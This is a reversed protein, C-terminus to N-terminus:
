GGMLEVRGEPGLRARRGCGENAELDGLADLDHVNGWARRGEGDLLSMIGLTPEGDRGHVVTYTEVTCVDGAGGAGAGVAGAGAGAGASSAGRRPLRDVEGQPVLHRFPETGPASSWLGVAHKTAYWGLGTVLGVAGPRSRLREAMTAISHTAYNNGPGGAFGLGGTVTPPRSGDDLDVGIAQAAMQVACPFCSYLDLLEVDDIGRGAAGLAARAAAAIAPSRHLVDRDTLFWHDNADAAALPFVMRDDPVGAARAAALSCMILAAGMDVRDNANMRKPYPFSIMRNEASVAAIQEPSCPERSWAFPNGAAVESFRAWLRATRAQHEAIGEGAAARLANEFLPFVNRPRDLGREREVTTVPERDTGLARAPPTDEPQTTWPPLGGGHRRAALRTAICDAGAILVVDLEGAAIEAASRGAITVPGNGGIASQAHDAVDVGLRLAVLQAPDAYSWSLPRLIRLSDAKELLRRGTGAPGCDAAAAELARAMLETPEPREEVAIDPAPRELVQGVGVLVATWPDLAVPAWRLSAKTRM